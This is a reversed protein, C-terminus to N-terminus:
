VSMILGAKVLRARTRIAIPLPEDFDCPYLDQEVMLIGSYEVEKLALTLDTLTPIGM